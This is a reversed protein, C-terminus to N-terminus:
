RLYAHEAMNLAPAHGCRSVLASLVVIMARMLQVTMDAPEPMHRYRNAAAMLSGTGFRCHARGFRKRYRDAADAESVLRQALGPWDAEPAAALVAAAARLDTLLVPRM